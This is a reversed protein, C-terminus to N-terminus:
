GKQLSYTVIGDTDGVLTFGLNLLVGISPELAPLTTAIVEQVQQEKFAKEILLRCMATAYGQRRHPTLVSYGIEVQGEPSPVGKFGGFGVLHQSASAKQGVGSANSTDVMYYFGWGDSGAGSELLGLAYKFSEEDNLEPPWYAPESVGLHAAINGDASLEVLIMETTAPILEVRGDRLIQAM